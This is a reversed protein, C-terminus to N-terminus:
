CQHHFVLNTLITQITSLKLVYETGKRTPLGSKGKETPMFNGSYLQMGPLDTYVDM